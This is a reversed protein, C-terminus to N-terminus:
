EVLKGAASENASEAAPLPMVSADFSPAIQTPTDAFHEILRKIREGKTGNTKLELRKLIGELDSNSLAGLLTEESRHSGWLAAAQMDKTGSRRLDFQGLITGLEFGRLRAFLCTFSHQDLTREEQVPPPPEPEKLVDRGAAVHAVLRDVLDDKSGSTRAGVDRCIERLREASTTRLRVVLKPQTMQALLRDIREDKSGSTPAGTAALAEYLESSSLYSFLRRASPRPMEIGVVQRVAQVLDEPLHTLGDRVYVLGASRLEHLERVFAEDQQWFERLDAHHEILFHEVQSIGLEQRLVALMSAEAPDILSDNSRAQYLVRRYVRLQDDRALVERADIAACLRATEALVADRLGANPIAHGDADLLLTIIAFAPPQRNLLFEQLFRHSRLVGEITALLEHRPLPTSTRAHEHALRELDETTAEGLLDALRM